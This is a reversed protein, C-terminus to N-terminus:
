QPMDTLSREVERDYLDTFVQGIMNPHIGAYTKSSDFAIRGHSSERYLSQFM